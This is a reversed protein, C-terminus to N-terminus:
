YRLKTGSKLRCGDVLEGAKLAAKIEAKMVRITEVTEIFREPIAADDDVDLAPPNRTIKILPYNATAYHDLGILDLQDKVYGDLRAAHNALAKAREAILKARAALDKGSSKYSSALRLCVDVKDAMEAECLELETLLKDGDAYDSETDGIMWQLHSIDARIEHLRRRKESM